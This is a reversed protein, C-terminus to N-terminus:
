NDTNPLVRQRRLVSYYESKIKVDLPAFSEKTNDGATQEWVLLEKRLPFLM